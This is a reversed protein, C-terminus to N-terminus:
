SMTYKTVSLQRIENIFESSLDVGGLQSVTDINLRNLEDTINLKVVFKGKHSSISAHLKEIMQEDIDAVDLTINFSKAMKNRVETLLFVNHVKLEIENINKAFKKRQVKAKLFVSNGQTLLHKFKLYDESFFFLKYSDEYDELTVIGYSTGNKSMKEESLSIIGALNIDRNM